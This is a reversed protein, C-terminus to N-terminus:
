NLSVIEKLVLKDLIDYLRWVPVECKEAIEVLSTKGDSYSLMDMMLTTTEYNRKDSISPYLDYKGMQPECFVTVKPCVNKEIAELALRIAEYGGALGTITVVSELDDLSTHYEEYCLYKSRMISAIPLDVHPACFQREDSGRDNWSYRIYKEDVHRLV